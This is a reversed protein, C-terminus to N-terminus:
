ITSSSRGKLMFNILFMVKLLVQHYLLQKKHLILIVIYMNDFLFNFLCFNVFISRCSYFASYILYFLYLILKPKKFSMKDYTHFPFMNGNTVTSVYHLYAIDLTHTPPFAKALFFLRLGNGHDNTCNSSWSLRRSVMSSTKQLLQTLPPNPDLAKPGTSRVQSWNNVATGQPRFRIYIHNINLYNFSYSCAKSEIIITYSPYYFTKYLSIINLNKTWM